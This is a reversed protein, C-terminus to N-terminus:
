LEVSQIKTAQCYVHSISCALSRVLFEALIERKYESTKHLICTHTHTDPIQFLATSHKEKARKPTSEAM